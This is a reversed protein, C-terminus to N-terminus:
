EEPEVDSVAEPKVSNLIPGVDIPQPNAEESSWGKDTLYKSVKETLYSPIDSVQVKGKMVKHGWVIARAGYKM